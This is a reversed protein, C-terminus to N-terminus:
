AFSIEHVAEYRQGRNNVVIVHLPGESRALLSFTIFPDDSLASTLVFRSVRDGGYYVAVEKLYLAESERVFKGDRWMLGTRSPHMIELQPHIIEGRRIRGHQVLEPIRIVPSKIREDSARGM